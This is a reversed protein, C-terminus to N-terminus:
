PIVLRLIPGRSVTVGRPAKEHEGEDKAAEQLGGQDHHDHGEDGEAEEVEGAVRHLEHDPLIRRDLLARAQAGLEPEVAGEVDLEHFVEAVGHLAFEAQRQALRALNGDEDLLPQRGRELEGRRRRQEGDRDADRHADVRREAPVARERV